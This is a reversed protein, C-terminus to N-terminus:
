AGEFDPEVHPLFKALFGQSALIHQGKVSLETPSFCGRAAALSRWATKDQELLLSWVQRIYLHYREVVNKRTRAPFRHADHASRAFMNYATKMPKDSAFLAIDSVNPEWTSREDKPEPRDNNSYYSLTPPSPKPDASSQHTDVPSTTRVKKYRARSEKRSASDMLSMYFDQYGVQGDGKESTAQEEESIVVMSGHSDRAIQGDSRDVFDSSRGNSWPDVVEAGSSANFVRRKRSEGNSSRQAAVDIDAM